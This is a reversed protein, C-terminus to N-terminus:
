GATRGLAGNSREAQAVNLLLRRVDLTSRTSVTRTSNPQLVHTSRIVSRRGAALTNRAAFAGRVVSHRAEYNRMYGDAVDDILSPLRGSARCRTSESVMARNVRRGAELRRVGRFHGDNTDRLTTM